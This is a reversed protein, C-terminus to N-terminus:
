CTSEQDTRTRQRSHKGIESSSQSPITRFKGATECRVRPTSQGPLPPTGGTAESLNQSDLWPKDPSATSAPNPLDIETITVANRVRPMPKENAFSGEIDSAVPFEVQKSANALTSEHVAAKQLDAISQLRNISDVERDYAARFSNIKRFESDYKESFQFM